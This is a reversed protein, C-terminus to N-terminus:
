GHEFLLRLVALETSITHSRKGESMLFGAVGERGCIDRRGYIEVDIVLDVKQLRM